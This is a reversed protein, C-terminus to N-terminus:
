ISKQEPLNFNQSMVESPMRLEPLQPARHDFGGTLALWHQNDKVMGLAGNLEAIMKDSMESLVSGRHGFVEQIADTVEDTFSEPFKEAIVSLQGAWFKQEAKMSSATNLNAWAEMYKGKWHQLRDFAHDSIDGGASMAYLKGKLLSSGDPIVISVGAEELRGLWYEVCSKQHIYEDVSSLNVGYVYLRKIPNKEVVHQYWALGLQYSFTSTFYSSGSATSIEELPFRKGNPIEPIEKQLWVNGDFASLFDMHEKPRGFYGTVEGKPNAWDIPHLQFWNTPTAKLNKTISGTSDSKHTFVHAMNIGWVEVSEDLGHIKDRTEEAYGLIAIQRPEVKKKRATKTTM